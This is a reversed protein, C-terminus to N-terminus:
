NFGKPQNTHKSPQDCEVFGASQTPSSNPPSIPTVQEPAERQHFDRRNQIELQHHCSKGRSLCPRSWSRLNGFFMTLLFCSLWFKEKANENLLHKFFGKALKEQLTNESCTRLDMKLNYTLWTANLPMNELLTKLISLKAM